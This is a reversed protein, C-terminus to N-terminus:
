ISFICHLKDAMFLLYEYIPSSIVQLTLTILIAIYHVIGLRGLCNFPNRMDAFLDTSAIAIREQVNLLDPTKWKKCSSYFGIYILSIFLCLSLEMHVLQGYICCSINTALLILSISLQETISLIQQYGPKNMTVSHEVLMILTALPLLLSTSNILSSGSFDCESVVYNIIVWHFSFLGRRTNIFFPCAFTSTIAVSLLLGACVTNVM